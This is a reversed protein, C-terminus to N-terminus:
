KDDPDRAKRKKPTRKRASPGEQDEDHRTGEDGPDKDRDDRKRGGDDDDRDHPGTKGRGGGSPKPGVIVVPIRDPQRVTVSPTDKGPKWVVVQSYSGDGNDTLGGDINSGPAGGTEFSGSRGPGLHNGYKDRPTITVEVRRRGGPLGGVDKTSASTKSPDVGVAVYTSWTTERNAVCATGYTARAHFTYNGEHRALNPMPLGYIGDPEIGGDDHSGDDLLTITSPTVPVLASGHAQELAILTSTRQDLTDGGPSTSAILPNQMLINGTGTTPAAIEVTIKGDVRGGDPNRLFVKPNIVDGTYVLPQLIPSLAPGGDVLVTLFYREEPAPGAFEGGGKQRFVVVKWTGDQEGAFPLPIRLHTWTDGSETAIGPTTSDITIGGPGTIRIHLESNPSVWGLVVTLMTEGCVQVAVPTAEYTGAPFVYEPDLSTGLDFIRGFSLAFFKKLTLGEDARTYIGGHNRALTTLRPGDVSADSGFGVVSLRTLANPDASQLAPEVSSIWEPTNELGDTMLLIARTNTSPSPAPFLGLATRLGGGITTMGGPTIGGVLGATAPPVPGILAPKTPTGLGVGALGYDSTPTTSFSVLGVRHSQDTRLLSVFLAAARRAEEIKTAGGAFGPLSMSGSRDFVLVVDIDRVPPPETTFDEWIAKISQGGFFTSVNAVIRGSADFVSSGSSGHDLSCRFPVVIPPDAVGVECTSDIPYRSVKKPTGRRQHVIFLPENLILPMWPPRSAIPPRGLGGMPTEIQLISYDVVPRSDGPLRAYGTRILRKMKYFQPNYGTPRAGACTTEWDFTIWGTKVDADTQICHGATIVLDPAILTATCSSLRVPPTGDEPWAVEGIGVQDIHVYIGVSRATQRVLADSVCDAMVWSPASHGSTVSLTDFYAPEVYPSDILFVDANTNRYGIAHSADGLAAEGRGYKDLTVRGTSGAAALYHWTVPTNGRIPRSWFDPGWAATYVDTDYGLDVVVQDGPGIQSGDFHLMVFKALPDIAFSHDWRNPGTPPTTSGPGTTIPAPVALVSGLRHM